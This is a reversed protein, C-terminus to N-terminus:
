GKLSGVMVGKEFFKLIFPYIILMPLTAVVILAYKMVDVSSAAEVMAAVDTLESAAVNSKSIIQKVVMQLTHLHNDRLYILPEMYSNWHGVLHYLMIVSFIPKSLPIVITRLYKFDTIGDMKAAELLEGPISSQFYTRILIMNYISIGGTLVLFGWRSNVLGLKSAVIYHPIMGGGFFMPILFFTNLFKRAWFDKRSMPYAALTNMILNFFTGVVAFLISNAYGSWIKKTAFVIKYGTICAEVPWLVVKGTSIASGSSFSASVVYIIPYLVIILLVSLIVKICNDFVKDSMGVKVKKDAEKM